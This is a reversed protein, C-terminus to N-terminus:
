LTWLLALGAAWVLGWRDGLVSGAGHGASTKGTPQPAAGTAGAGSGTSSVIATVVTPVTSVTTTSVPAISEPAFFDKPGTPRVFDMALTDSNGGSDSFTFFLDLTPHGATNNPTTFTGAYLTYGTIVPLSANTAPRLAFSANFPTSPTGLFTNDLVSM